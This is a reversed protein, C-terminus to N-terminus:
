ESHRDARAVLRRWSLPLPILDHAL